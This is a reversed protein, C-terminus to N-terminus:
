IKVGVSNLPFFFDVKLIQELKLCYGLSFFPILNSMFKGDEEIM